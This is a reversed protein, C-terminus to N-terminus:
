FLSFLKSLWSFINRRYKILAFALLAYLAYFRTKDFWSYDREVEKVETVKVEKERDRYVISDKREVPKQFEVPKQQPKNALSHYLTGDPNIRADSTAYDTELHSVSDKTEREASQAPIEVIVTDPVYVTVTNVKVSTSDREKTDTGSLPKSSCCSGLMACILVAIIYAVFKGVASLCAVAQAEEESMGKMIESNLLYENHNFYDFM